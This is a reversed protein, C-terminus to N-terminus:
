ASTTHPTWTTGGDTNIYSRTTTSSGDSRLYLSGKGATITPLGSGFYVGMSQASGFLIAGTTNGGATLAVAAAVNLNRNNDITAALVQSANNSNTYFDIASAPRQGGTVAAAVRFDIKAVDFFTTARCNARITGIVDQSVVDGPAAHTGRSKKFQVISGAADASAESLVVFYASDKAVHVIDTISTLGVAYVGIGVQQLEDVRLAEVMNGASNRSSIAAFGRTGGAGARGASYKARIVSAGDGEDSQLMVSSIDGPTISKNAVTIVGELDTPTPHASDTTFLHNSTAEYLM